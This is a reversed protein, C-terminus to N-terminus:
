ASDGNKWKPAQNDVEKGTTFFDLWSYPSATEEIDVININDGTDQDLMPPFIELTVEKLLIMINVPMIHINFLVNYALFMNIVIDIFQYDEYAKTPEFYIQFLWDFVVFVYFFSYLVCWTTSIMRFIRLHQLYFPIEFILPWSMITQVILYVSNYVLLLNGDAWWDNLIINMVLNLICFVISWVMWPAGVFVFNFIWRFYGLYEYWAHDEEVWERGDPYIDEGITDFDHEIDKEIGELPKNAPEVGAWFDDAVNKIADPLLNEEVGKIMDEDGRHRDHTVVPHKHAEWKPNADM